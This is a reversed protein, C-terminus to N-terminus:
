SSSRTNQAAAMGILYALILVLFIGAIGSALTSFYPNEITPLSYDPMIGHWFGETEEIGVSRAVTELGDPYASTFPLLIALGVIIAILVKALNKM